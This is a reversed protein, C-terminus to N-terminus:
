ANSDIVQSKTMIKATHGVTTEPTVARKVTDELYKKADDVTIENIEILCDIKDLADWIQKKAELSITRDFTVSQELNFRYMNLRVIDKDSNLVEKKKTVVLPASTEERGKIFYNYLFDVAENYEPRVGNMKEIFYRHLAIVDGGRRCGFCFFSNSEEYYKCSPTDEDHLPCCVFQKNEFDVPYLDYYGDLQPIIISYFYMPITIKSKVEAIMMKSATVHKVGSSTVSNTNTHIFNSM